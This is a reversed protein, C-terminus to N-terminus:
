EVTRDQYRLVTSGIYIVDGDSLVHRSVPQQNLLVAEPDHLNELQVSNGQTILRAHEPAVDPDKLLPIDCHGASGITTEHRYIIFEKGTLPGDIITVWAEKRVEELLGIAGGTAAGIVALSILRSIEGGGVITGIVDFLIGGVFGGVAGGIFGNILRQFDMYRIGQAVGIMMGAISWGITRSIVQITIGPNPGGIKAYALQGLFGAAAGGVAGVALAIGADRTMKIYAGTLLGELAGLATGILAGVIGFFIVSHLYIQGPDAEPADTTWPENILWALAGGILGAIVMQLMLNGFIAAAASKKSKAKLDAASQDGVAPYSRDASGSSDTPPPEDDLDETDIVLMDESGSDETPPFQDGSEEELDDLEIDIPEDHNQNEDTM